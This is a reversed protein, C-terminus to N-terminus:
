YILSIRMRRMCVTSASLGHGAGGVFKLRLYAGKLKLSSNLSFPVFEGTLQGVEVILLLYYNFKILM